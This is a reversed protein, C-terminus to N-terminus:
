QNNIYDRFKNKTRKLKNEDSPFVEEEGKITKDRFADEYPVNRKSKGFDIIRPDGTEKDIMINGEHLDRHYINKQNMKQVFNELKKFFSDFNFNDPIEKKGFMVEDLGVANLKEMVYLHNEENMFYYYPYPTRVEADLDKLKDLYEMERKVDNGKKYEQPETIIKFCCECDVSSTFVKATYGEGLEEWKKNIAENAIQKLKKESEQKEEETMGELFFKEETQIPQDFIKKKNKKQREEQKNIYCQIDKLLKQPDEHGIISKELEDAKIAGGASYNRLKDLKEEIQDYVDESRNEEQPESINEPKELNM